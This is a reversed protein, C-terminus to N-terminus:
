VKLFKRIAINSGFTGVVLGIALYIILIPYMISRFDPIVLINAMIGTMIKDCALQYVGWLVFFAIAGGLLGLILGEVVFPCRIFSNSAGVMKMIGIEERRSFTALKITNQMIFVSVVMLVVILIVSVITVVNRLAIFGRSLELSASTEAIGNVAKVAEDTRDMLALDELYIVYRSRFVSPTLDSFMERDEEQHEAIFNDMAQQRTIYEISKVNDLAELRKGIELSEEDSLNEDVFALIENQQELNDINVDVVYALVSFVGMILLCAVIVMVCAFSMFGHTFISLLGEKILYGLRNIKM